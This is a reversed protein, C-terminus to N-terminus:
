FQKSRGVRNRIDTLKKQGSTKISSFIKAKELLTDPLTIKLIEAMKINVALSIEDVYILSMSSIPAGELIDRLVDVTKKILSESTYYFSVLAGFDAMMENTGIFAIRKGLTTRIIKPFRQEDFLIKDNVGVIFSIFNEMKHITPLADTASQVSVEYVKYSIAEAAERMLHIREEPFDRSYLFAVKNKEPFLTKLESFLLDANVCSSIGTLNGAPKGESSLYGASFPNSVYLFLGPLRTAFLIETAADGISIGYQYKKPIIEKFVESIDQAYHIECTMDQFSFMMENQLGKALTENEETQDAIIIVSASMASTVMLILFLVSHFLIRKM